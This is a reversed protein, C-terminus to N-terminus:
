EAHSEKPKEAPCAKRTGCVTLVSQTKPVILRVAREYFLYNWAWNVLTIIKNRFGILYALHVFIWLFWAPRGTFDRGGVSAIAANRGITVMSGKDRYFYEEAPEGNMVRLVNKAVHEGQQIANPAVTPATKGEPWAVDGAVHIEPRDAVQLTPTVAIRGSKGIPLRGESEIAEGQIGASWVITCAKIVRGDALTASDPTVAAVGAKVIVEVGMSELKKRTYGRLKQPFPMLVDESADILVVKAKCLALLPFDRRLPTAILEALAGAFELGTAGAGVIAFTLLGEPMADGEICAREFCSLVHGRLKVADELSKLSFANEEAGPVGYFATRSGQALILQDYPFTAADTFVLRERVDMGTVEGMVTRVNGAERFIGRIPYAIASLDIEAAAVQYLLPQFTHYNNRDIITVDVTDRASGHSLHRAAWLGAFGAGIIVVKHRGKKETHQLM